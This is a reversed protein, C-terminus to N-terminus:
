QAPKEAKKKPEGSPAPKWFAPDGKILNPSAYSIAPNLSFLNTEAQDVSAALLDDLKKIGEKGM